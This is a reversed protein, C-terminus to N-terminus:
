YKLQFYVRRNKAKGDKTNNDAIPKTDGYGNAVLRSPKIGKNILYAMVADARKQSLELNKAPDGVNDTHGEIYVSAEPFENLIGALIDLNVFSTALIVESGTEFYIGKAALAIKEVVEKKIEPCGKNSAPGAVAPCVDKNDFVGDGDTDPCGESDAPGAKSPCKDKRDEVGDGDTDPCGNFQKLGKETPCADDMDIIGDGDSDPCGQNEIPGANKPCKDKSDIIGDKDTDPCGNFKRPGFQFPCSDQYDPITDLDSDKPCGEDNVPLEWPQTKPCKDLQDPVGDKDKDKQKSGGTMSSEGYPINFFVGLSHYAFMDNNKNRTHVMYRYPSGDWIDNFTYNFMSQLRIGFSETPMFQFGFGSAVNGAAGTYATPHRSVKTHMYLGGAGLMIYPTFKKDKLFKFRFGGNVTAYNMRFSQFEIEPDVYQLKTQFGVDGGSGFLCIDINPTLYYGISYGVGQYNPKRAFFLASGLDGQYENLGGSVEFGLRREASQSFGYQFTLVTLAIILLKKKIM